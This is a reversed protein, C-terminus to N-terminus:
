KRFPNLMEAIETQGREIAFAYADMDKMYDGTYRVSANIGKELLHRVIDRSGSMIAGFLPNREPESTDLLAGCSILYDVIDSHGENAAENIASGGFVGAKANIDAGMSILLKVIGLKGYSSAVHLWTGFPTMMTLTSKDNILEKIKDVDGQKIANKIDKATTLNNM